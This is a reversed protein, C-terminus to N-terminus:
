PPEDASGDDAPATLDPIDLAARGESAFQRQWMARLVLATAAIMVWGSVFWGLYALSFFFARQGRNFHRGAAVSMAACRRAHLRGEDGSGPPPMAGMLIATYNFLRYSWAFKFFAYGFILVLGIVKIEWGLRSTVVAFPLDSILRLVDETSRLLALSGGMAILSTSAFFATGNQLAAMISADVIRQERNVMREMWALRYANMRRNLSEGGKSSREVALMYLTWASVFFAIALYDPLAFPNIV